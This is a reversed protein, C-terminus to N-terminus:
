IALGEEFKIAQFFLAFEKSVIKTSLFEIFSMRKYNAIAIIIERQMKKKLQPSFDVQVSLKEEIIKMIERVLQRENIGIM